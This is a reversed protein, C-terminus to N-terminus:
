AGAMEPTGQFAPLDTQGKARDLDLMVQETIYVDPRYLQFFWTVSGAVLRYRLRVPVRAKEGMFFPPLNIIFLNPVVLKQGSADRHEEEWTLEGEGSSLVVNSKVRTEASIKLGRSLMQLENPAAVKGGLLGNWYTSEDEHPTAIETIHDELWEAFEAQKMPQKDQAVWAQWEISLPFEYLIRHKGNDPDGASRKEHYDVITMLSPKKWDTNAFLVSHATKHRDTLDIFSELTTVRATGDKRAPAFRYEELLPKVSRLAGSTRDLLVQATTPLGHIATTNYIDITDSGAQDCLQKITEIDIAGGTFGYAAPALNVDTTTETSADTM